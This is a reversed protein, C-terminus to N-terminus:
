WYMPLNILLSVGGVAFSIRFTALDPVGSWARLSHLFNTVPRLCAWNSTSQHHHHHHIKFYSNIEHMHMKVNMKVMNCLDEVIESRTKIATIKDYDKDALSMDMLGKIDKAGNLNKIENRLRNHSIFLGDSTTVVKSSCMNIMGTVEFALHSEYTSILINDQLEFKSQTIEYLPCEHIM